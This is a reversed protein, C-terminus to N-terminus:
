RRACGGTRRLLLILMTAFLFVTVAWIEAVVAMRWVTRSLGLAMGAVFGCVVRLMQQEALKRNTIAPTTELLLTGSQSVMFAVLGCALAAAVASGV